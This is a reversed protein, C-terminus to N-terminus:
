MFKTDIPWNFWFCWDRYLLTILGANNCRSGSRYQIGYRWQRSPIVFFCWSICSNAHWSNSISIATWFVFDLATSVFEMNSLNTSFCLFIDFNSVFNCLRWSRILSIFSSLSSKVKAWNDLFRSWCWRNSLFILAIDVCSSERFNSSFNSSVLPGTVCFRSAESWLCLMWRWFYWPFLKTPFSQWLNNDGWTYWSIQSLMIELVSSTVFLAVIWWFALFMAPFNLLSQCNNAVTWLIIDWALKMSSSVIGRMWWAISRYLSYKLFSNGNTRNVSFCCRISSWAKDQIISYWNPKPNNPSCPISDIWWLIWLNDSLWLPIILWKCLSFDVM